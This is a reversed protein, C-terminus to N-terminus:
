AKSQTMPVMFIGAHYVDSEATPKKALELLKSFCEEIIETAAGVQSRSLNLTETGTFREQPSVEDQANIIKQLMQKHFKKIAANDTKSQTLTRDHVVKFRSQTGREILELRELRNLADEVEYSHIGIAKAIDQPNQSKGPIRLWNLVVIQFWESINLFHDISLDYSRRLQPNKQEIQKLISQKVVPNKSRSYQVLLLFYESEIPSLDLREAVGPANNETLERDGSLISSLLSPQLRLHKAMARLSYKPNRKQKEVLANKLFSKYDNHTFIM